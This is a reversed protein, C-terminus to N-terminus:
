LGLQVGQDVRQGVGVDVRQLHAYLSTEGNGHDVVVYRGYGRTGDPVATTVVGAAAAVVPDDVDNTRNWGIAKSSPSHSPRTTGTWSEGCPFPMEYATMPAAAAPAATVFVTVAAVFAAAPALRPLRM